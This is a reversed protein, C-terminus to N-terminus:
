ILTDFPFVLKRLPVTSLKIFGSDDSDVEFDVYFPAALLQIKNFPDIEQRFNSYIYLNFWLDNYTSSAIDCFHFRIFHKANKNVPFKWTINPLSSNGSSDGSNLHKVTQVVFVPAIYKTILEPLYTPTVDKFMQSADGPNLLYSDDPLWNRWLDDLRNSTSRGVDIRHITHLVKSILGSGASNNGKSSVTTAKDPIFREPALFVELANVFALSSQYPVLYIKFRREPNTVLFEEITPSSSINRIIYNTLLSFGSASVNFRAVSLNTPSMFPFFHLRRVIDTGNQNLDFKYSSTREYLRATQYLPEPITSSDRSEVPKGGASFGQDGVFDHGEKSTSSHSGCNIFYNCHKCRDPLSLLLVM